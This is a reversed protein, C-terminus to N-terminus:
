GKTVKIKKTKPKVIKSKPETEKKVKQDESTKELEIEFERDKSTQSAPTKEFIHDGIEENNKIKKSVKGDHSVLNSKKRFQFFWIIFIGILVLIQAVVFAILFKTIQSETFIYSNKEWTIKLDKLGLKSLYNHFILLYNFIILGLLTLFSLIEFLIGTTKRIGSKEAKILYLGLGFIFGIPSILILILFIISALIYLWFKIKPSEQETSIGVKQNNKADVFELDNNYETYDIPAHIKTFFLKSAEPSYWPNKESDKALNKIAKKDLWNAYTTSFDKHTKKNEALIYLDIYLTEPLDSASYKKDFETEGRELEEEVNSIEEESVEEENTLGAENRWLMRFSKMRIPYILKSSSFSLKLPPLFAQKKNNELIEDFKSFNMKLITFYWNHEIYQDLLYQSDGPLYYENENLWQLMGASEAFQFTNVEYIDTNKIDLKPISSFDKLVEKFVAHDNESIKDLETFLKKSVYDIDPKNPTPIIWASGVLDGNIAPSLILTEQNNEHVLVAREGTQWLYYDKPPIFISAHTRSCSLVLFSLILTLIILHISKIM